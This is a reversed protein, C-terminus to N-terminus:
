PEPSQILGVPRTIAVNQIHTCCGNLPFQISFNVTKRPVSDGLVDVSAGAGAGMCACLCVYARVCACECECVLSCACAFWMHVYLQWQSCM